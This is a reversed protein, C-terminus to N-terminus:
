SVYYMSNPLKFTRKASPNGEFSSWQDGIIGWIRYGENELKRRAEAKFIKVTEFEDDLGRLVLGSWGHYGVNILNDVTADRVAERRTSILFIKFGKRKIDWYMKQSQDLAPANAMRMWAELSTSNWGRGGFNHNIFYPLTSLLTDDIDFIWADKGDDKLCCCSSLYLQCEEMARESDARYQYSTMYNGIHSTCEEPVVAFGKINNVEVNIRWSECYSKLNAADSEIIKNRSNFINWNAMASCILTLLLLVTLFLIKM